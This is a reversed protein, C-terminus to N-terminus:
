HGGSSGSSSNSGSSSESSGSDDKEPRPLATFSKDVINFPDYISQHCQCYIKNQGGFKKSGPIKFGPVCCFHTCKDLWAIFGKSTSAKLWEDNKAMAEIKPSRLVQIPITSDTGKSRWKGMAPKGLGSKGIGNGWEKYDSFHEVKLPDGGKLAEKQWQYPVDEPSISRFENKQDADPQIGAYTQVGCYQFWQTSYTVGGLEMEAVTITTGDPKEVKKPKPWVGKLTGNEIKIPIQPMGRPAPGATNKLAKYKTVGGGEGAPTTLSTAAVGTTTGVAGLSAAGVVGKVFRRRGTETPYKDDDAM